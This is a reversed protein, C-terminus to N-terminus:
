GIIFRKIFESVGDNDNDHFTIVNVKELVKLSANKMAIGFGAEKLMSIDSESDGFAMCHKLDIKMKDAIYRLAFGKNATVPNIQYYNNGSEVISIDNFTELSRYLNKIDKKQNENEIFLQFSLIKEKEMNIQNILSLNLSNFYTINEELIPEFDAKYTKNVTIALFYINNDTLIKTTKIATKNNISYTKETKQTKNNYILAGNLPAFYTIPLDKVARKISELARGSIVALEVNKEKVDLLTRISNDSIVLKNNLLTGDLDLAVLKTNKM